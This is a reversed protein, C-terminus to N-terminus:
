QNLTNRSQSMRYNTPSQDFHKRFSDSFTTLDEFGCDYAIHSIMEATHRLLHAARELKKRKIYRAPSEQYQAMFSRKFTSLSMHCLHALEETKLNSFINNEIISQFRVKEPYFIESFFQRVSNQQKSRMLILILEKLKITALEDDMMAPNEFYVMLNNVFSSVLDIDFYRIPGENPTDLVFEPVEQKFIEKIVQPHFYVVM